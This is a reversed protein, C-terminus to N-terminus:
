EVTVSNILKTTSQVVNYLSAVAFFISPVGDTHTHAHRKAVVHVPVLLVLWVPKARSFGSIHIGM